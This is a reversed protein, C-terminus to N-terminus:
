AQNASKPNLAQEITSQLLAIKEKNEDQEAKLKNRTTLLENALNLATMLLAQEPTAISKSNSSQTLRQSLEEAANLLASEQGIPCAVKLKRDLVDIEVTRQPM